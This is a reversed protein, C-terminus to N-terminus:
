NESKSAQSTGGYAGMNIRGGNPMQEDGVPTNPDGADICRSSKSDYLWRQRARSWRGSQSKLHFDGNNANIFNPYLNINTEGPWGGEIDSYSVVTVSDGYDYIEHPKDGWLICNTLSPRSSQNFVAGGAVASNGSITCNTLISNSAVNYLGGGYSVASNGSIICNTLSPNSFYNYIGGGYRDATNKTFTCNILLTECYARNYM